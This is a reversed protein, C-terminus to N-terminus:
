DVVSARVSATPRRCYRSISLEAARSRIPRSCQCAHVHSCQCNTTSLLPYHLTRGCPDQNTSFVPVRSRAFVPLQDDVTTALPSNQRVLRSQDLVSVRTFTCVSATAPRTSACTTSSDLDCARTSCDRIACRRTVQVCPHVGTYLHVCTYLDRSMLLNIAFYVHCVCTNVRYLLRVVIDIFVTLVICARVMILPM